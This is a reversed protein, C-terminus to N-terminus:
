YTLTVTETWLNRNYIGTLKFCIDVEEVEIMEYSVSLPTEGVTIPEGWYWVSYEGSGGYYDCVFDLTDGPSLQRYGKGATQMQESLPRYGAVFGDPELDSGIMYVMVTVQDERNGLIKTYRDRLGEIDADAQVVSSTNYPEETESLVSFFVLLAAAVALLLIFVVGLSVLMIFANVCGDRKKPPRLPEQVNQTDFLPPQYRYGAGQETERREPQHM